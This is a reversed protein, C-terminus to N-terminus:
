MVIVYCEISALDYSSLFLKFFLICACHLFYVCVCVTLEIGQNNM